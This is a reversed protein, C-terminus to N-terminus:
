NVVPITITNSVVGEQSIVLPTHADDPLDAPLAIRVQYIGISGIPLDAAIVPVSRGSVVASVPRLVPADPGQFPEGATVPEAADSDNVAGLGATWVVVVEGPRAPSEATVPTGPERSDTVAHLVMGNRPEAGGFAFLGPAAALLKVAVANSIIVTGDERQVRVYLSATSPSELAYPLQVRIESSSASLLPLKTGNLLVEVGALEKPLVQDGESASETSPGLGTGAITVLTGPASPGAALSASNLVSGSALPLDGATFVLIRHDVADAVFLNTGDSVMASPRSISDPGPVESMASSSFSPQGLVVDAPQTDSAPLSNWILVRHLAADGVFLRKGDFATSVPDAVALVIDPGKAVRPLSSDRWILVRHNPPDAAVVTKGYISVGAVGPLVAYSGIAGVSFGCVPCSGDSHRAPEERPGPIQSLDVTLLRHSADAAYLWGSSLALVNPTFATEHASFSPQGIVARAAQGNQFEAAWISTAMLSLTAIRTIKQM